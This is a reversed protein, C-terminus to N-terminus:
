AINPLLMSQPFCHAQLITCSYLDVNPYLNKEVFYPVSLASREFEKADQLTPNDEIGMLSLVEDASEKMVKARPDFNKYVRHGFGM